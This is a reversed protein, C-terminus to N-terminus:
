KGSLKKYFRHAGVTLESPMVLLPRLFFRYLFGNGYIYKLSELHEPTPRYGKLKSERVLAFFDKLFRSKRQNLISAPLPNRPDRFVMTEAKLSGLMVSFYANGNSQWRNIPVRGRILPQGVVCIPRRNMNLLILAMQVFVTGIYADVNTDLWFEKRVITAPLFSPAANLVKFYDGATAFYYDKTEDLLSPDLFETALVSRDIAQSMDHNYQSYNLYILGLEPNKESIALVKSIAGNEFLDDQGSFWILPSAAHLAVQRFNRDMGLNEENKFIRIFSYKSAYSHLLELTRDKSGDDCFVIEVRPDYQRLISALTEDLTESGNYTPICISIKLDTM